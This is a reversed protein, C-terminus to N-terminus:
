CWVGRMQIASKRLDCAMPATRSAKQYGDDEPQDAPGAATTARPTPSMATKLRNTINM